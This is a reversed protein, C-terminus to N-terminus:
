WGHVWDVGLCADGHPLSWLLGRCTVEIKENCVVRKYCMFNLQRLVGRVCFGSFGASMGFDRVKGKHDFRRMGRVFLATVNGRGVRSTMTLHRIMM